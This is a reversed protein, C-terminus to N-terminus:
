GAALNLSFPWKGTHPPFARVSLFDVWKIQINVNTFPCVLAMICKGSPQPIFHMIPM